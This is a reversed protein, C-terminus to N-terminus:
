VTCPSVTFRAARSSASQLSCPVESSTEAVVAFASGSAFSTATPFMATRPRVLGTVTNAIGTSPAHGKAINLIKPRPSNRVLTKLTTKTLSQEPDSAAQCFEIVQGAAQPGVGAPRNRDFRVSDTHEARLWPM